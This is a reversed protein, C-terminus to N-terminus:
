KLRMWRVPKACYVDFKCAVRVAEVATAGKEMAALAALAGTGLAFFRGEVKDPSMSNEYVYVGKYTLLLAGTSRLRYDEMKISEECSHKQLHHLLQQGGATDGTFGIIGDPVRFLKRCGYHLSDEVTLRSDAALIKGRVAICTM